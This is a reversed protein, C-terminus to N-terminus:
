LWGRMVDNCVSQLAACRVTCEHGQTRREWHKKFVETRRDVESMIVILDVPRTVARLRLLAQAEDVQLSILWKTIEM